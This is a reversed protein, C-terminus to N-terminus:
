ADPAAAEAAAARELRTETVRGARLEVHVADGAADRWVYREPDDGTKVGLSRTLTLIQMLRMGPQLRAHLMVASDVHGLPREAAIRMTRLARSFQLLLWFVVVTVALVVGRWGMGVYGAAVAAVALGWGVVATVAAGAAAHSFIAVISANRVHTIL